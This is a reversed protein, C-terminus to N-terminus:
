KLVIPLYVLANLDGASIEVAGSDCKPGAPRTKGRQDKLLCGTNIGGEILPSGSLPLYTPTTGGFFGLPGLKLNANTTVLCNSDTAHNGGLNVVSGLNCADAIATNRMDLVVTNTIQLGAGVAAKNQDITVNVLSITSIGLQSLLGGGGIVGGTDTATNASLTSNEAYVIGGINSVGGGALATNHDITSQHIRVVDSSSIGGGHARSVNQTIRTQSINVTASNFIGGGDDAAINGSLSGGIIDVEDGYNSLGGGTTGATNNTLNTNLLLINGSLSWIGGGDQAARNRDITSGTVTILGGNNEIAAGYGASNSILTSANIVTTSNTNAFVAGGDISHNNTLTSTQLIISGSDNDLAGGNSTAVNHAFLTGVTKVSGGTNYIGGGGTAAQNDKFTSNTATLNGSNYIAGGSTTSHNNVFRANILILTGFNEIAGASTGNSLGNALTINTLTLTKGSFVQFLAVSNNGSLTIVGGGDITTDDSIQKYFTFNITKPGGCSFNVLGGGSLATTLDSELCSGSVTGNARVPQLASMLAIALAGGTIIARWVSRAISNKM